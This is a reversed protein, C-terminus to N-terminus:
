RSRADALFEEVTARWNRPHPRDSAHGPFRGVFAPFGGAIVETKLLMEGDPSGAVFLAAARSYLRLMPPPRLVTRGSLARYLRFYLPELREYLM